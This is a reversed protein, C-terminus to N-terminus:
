SAVPQPYCSQATLTLNVVSLFSIVYTGNVGKEGASCNTNASFTAGSMPSFVLNAPTVIDTGNCPPTQSQVAVCRTATDVSIHLLNDIWVVWGTQMIGFIFWIVPVAVLAFEVAAAGCKNKLLFKMHDTGSCYRNFFLDANADVFARFDRHHRTFDTFVSLEGIGYLM